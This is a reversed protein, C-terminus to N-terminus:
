NIQTEIMTALLWVNGCNEQGKRILTSKKRLKGILICLAFKRDGALVWSGFWHADICFCKRNSILSQLRHVSFLYKFGTKLNHRLVIKPNIRKMVNSSCVIFMRFRINKM